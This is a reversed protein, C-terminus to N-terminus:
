VVRNRRRHLILHFHGDNDERTEKCSHCSLVCGCGKLYLMKRGTRLADDVFLRTFAAGEYRGAKMNTACSLVANTISKVAHTPLDQSPSPWARSRLPIKASRDHRRMGCLLPRPCVSPASSARSKASSSHLARCLGGCRSIRWIFLLVFLHPRSRPFLRGRSGPRPVPLPPSTVPTAFEKNRHRAILAVNGNGPHRASRRALGM